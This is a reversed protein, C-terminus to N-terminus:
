QVNSNIVGNGVLANTVSEMNVSLNNIFINLSTDKQMLAKREMISPPQSFLSLIEVAKEGLTSEMLHKILIEALASCSGQKKGDGSSLVVQPINEKVSSSPHETDVNPPDAPHLSQPEITASPPNAQIHDDGETCMEMPTEEEVLEKLFVCAMQPEQAQRKIIPINFKVFVERSCSSTPIDTQWNRPASEKQSFQDPQCQINLNINKFGEPKLKPINYTVHSIEGNKKLYQIEVSAGKASSHILTSICLVEDVSDVQYECHLNLLHLDALLLDYYLVYKIKERWEISLPQKSRARAQLLEPDVERSALCPQILATLAQQNAHLREPNSTKNLTLQLADNLSESTFVHYIQPDLRLGGVLLAKDFNVLFMVTVHSTKHSLPVKLEKNLSLGPSDPSLSLFIRSFQLLPVKLEKNLSLGPSDTHLVDELRRCMNIEIDEFHIKKLKKIEYNVFSVTNDQKLFRVEINTGSPSSSILTLVNKIAEKSNADYQCSINCEYQNALLLDYRFLINKKPTIARRHRAALFQNRTGSSPSTRQQNELTSNHIPQLSPSYSQM